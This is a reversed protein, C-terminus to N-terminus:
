FLIFVLNVSSKIIKGAPTRLMGAPGLITKTGGNDKKINYWYYFLKLFHFFYPRFFYLFLIPDTCYYYVVTIFYNPFLIIKDRVAALIM